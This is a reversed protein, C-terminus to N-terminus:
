KTPRSVYERIFRDADKIMCEPWRNAYPTGYLIFHEVDYSDYLIKKDPDDVEGGIRYGAQNYVNCENLKWYISTSFIRDDHWAHNEHYYNSINWIESQVIGRFSYVIRLLAGGSHVIVGPRSYGNYMEYSIKGYAISDLDIYAKTSSYGAVNYTGLYRWQEASCVSQLLLLFFFIVSISWLRILRGSM